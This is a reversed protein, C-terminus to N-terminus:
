PAKWLGVPNVVRRSWSYISTCLNAVILILTSCGLLMHVDGDEPSAPIGRRPLDVEEISQFMIQEVNISLQQEAM